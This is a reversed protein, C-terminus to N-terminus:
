CVPPIKSMNIQDELDEILPRVEDLIKPALKGDQYQEIFLGIKLFGIFKFERYTM